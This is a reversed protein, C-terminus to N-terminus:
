KTGPLAKELEMMKPATVGEAGTFQARWAMCVMLMGWWKRGAKVGFVVLSLHAPVKALRSLARERAPM